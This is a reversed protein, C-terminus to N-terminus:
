SISLSGPTNLNPRTQTVASRGSEGALTLHGNFLMLAAFRPLLFLIPIASFDQQLDQQFL